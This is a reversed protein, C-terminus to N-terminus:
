PSASTSRQGLRVQSSLWFARDGLIVEAAIPLSPYSCIRKLPEDYFSEGIVLPLVLTESSGPNVILPVLGTTDDRPACGANLLLRCAGKLHTEGSNTLNVTLDFAEGKDAIDPARIDAQLCTSGSRMAFRRVGPGFGNSDGQCSGGSLHISLSDDSVHDMWSLEWLEGAPRSQVLALPHEHLFQDLAPYNLFRIMRLMQGRRAPLFGYRSYLRHAGPNDLDTQLHLALSGMESARTIIDEVLRSGVGRGRFHPAVEMNVLEAFPYYVAELVARGAVVGNVKAVIKEKEAFEELSAAVRPWTHARRCAYLVGGEMGAHVIEEGHRAFEDCTTVEINETM